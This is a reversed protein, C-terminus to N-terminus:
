NLKYFFLRGSLNSNRMECKEGLCDRMKEREEPTM